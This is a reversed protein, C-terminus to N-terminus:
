AMLGEGEGGVPAVLAELGGATSVRGGGQSQSGGAEPGAWRDEQGGGGPARLVPEVELEGRAHAGPQM